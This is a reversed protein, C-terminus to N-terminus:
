KWSTKNRDPLIRVGHSFFVNASRSSRSAIAIAVNRTSVSM